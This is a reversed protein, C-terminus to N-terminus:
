AATRKRHAPSLIRAASTGRLQDYALGTLWVAAFCEPRGCECFFPIAENPDLRRLGHRMYHNARRKREHTSDRSLRDTVHAPGTSPTAINTM